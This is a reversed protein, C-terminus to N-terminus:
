FMVFGYFYINSDNPILRLQYEGSLTSPLVLTDSTIITTYAVADNEDVLELTFGYCPTTFTLTYDEIDVQPIPTRPRGGQDNTPDTYGSQLQVPKPAANMNVSSLPLIAMMMSLLIAKSKKM